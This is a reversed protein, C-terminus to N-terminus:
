DTLINSLLRYSINQNAVTFLIASENDDFANNCNIYHVNNITNESFFHLHGSIFYDVQYQRCLEMLYYKEEEYPFSTFSQTEDDQLSYHTFIFLNQKTNNKLIEGLWAKQKSGLSGSASDLFILRSAAFNLQYISRGFFSNFYIIGNNYLDHNGLVPYLPANLNARDSSVMQYQETLGNQVIDGNIIV